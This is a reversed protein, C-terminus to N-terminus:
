NALMNSSMRNDKVSDIVVSLSDEDVNKIKNLSVYLADMSRHYICEHIWDHNERFLDYYIRTTKIVSTISKASVVNTISGDRVMRYNYWPGDYGAFSDAYLCIKFTWDYDEHLIGEFFRIHNKEVMDRKIIKNPAGVSKSYYLLWEVARRKDFGDQLYDSFNTVEM